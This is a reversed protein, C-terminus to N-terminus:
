QSIAVRSTRARPAVMGAQAWGARDSGYLPILGLLHHRDRLDADLLQRVTTKWGRASGRPVSASEFKGAWELADDFRGLRLLCWLRRRSSELNRPDARQARQDVALARDYLGLTAYITALRHQAETARTAEAGRRVAEVLGPLDVPIIGHDISWKTARAIAREPDFGSELDFPVGEQAYYEAVRVLNDANRENRRLYLASKLSRFIQIWSAEGELHRVTSPNRRGPIAEIPLGTGLFLDIGQRDLLELYDEEERVPLRSGIALNAEMAELAVNMTGSSSMQLGPSLWFSMFGGQSYDNYVRGTVGTDTLFWVAHGNFKAAYYPESYTGAGSRLYRSVLVWDGAALHLWGAALLGIGIMAPFLRQVLTEQSRGARFVLAGAVGLAFIGLWLFRSALIAAAVGAVALALLVPDITRDRPRLGARLESWVRWAGLAIALVCLWCVVWAAWTPPLYPLPAAFLNTANWEDAVAGLALTDGGATFYALHASFGQPNAGSAILMLLGALGLRGARTRDEPNAVVGPLIPLALLSVSVGLILLPGLLFAAHINAWLASLLIAVAVAVRSPGSRRAILLLYLFLTAALTFLDPRLQVLRYTSLLIFLLLGASAALASDSARRVGFWALALILGVFAAHFFRLGFFGLASQIEFLAVSGLWSSSSPAGPAAYLHPDAALWPGQSAFVEGLALHIWTDNAYLPQGALVITAVSLALAPAHILVIGLALPVLRKPPSGHGSAAGNPVGSM